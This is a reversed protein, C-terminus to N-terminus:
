WAFSREEMGVIGDMVALHPKVVSYLDIVAEGFLRRDALLHMEKRAKLPLAGFMNKVAGTYYTLEHTKLKPLSIIVDADLVAKSVFLHPFHMANPVDVERFGATQFNILEADYERAVAGIGSTKFAEATAGPRAIGASDGVVPIGGAELVLECM